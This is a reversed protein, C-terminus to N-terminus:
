GKKREYDTFTYGVHEERNVLRFEREVLDDFRPFFTDGPIEQDVITLLLEDASNLTQAFVTGGGIVFVKEERRLAQLATELSAHTEIGPILRSTLVVNRRGPLPNGLSEYTKRGMLVINGVTLEKFRRLDEPIRWPIKGDKGIARNRSLAAILILKM